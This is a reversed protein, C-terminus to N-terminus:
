LENFALRIEDDLGFTYDWKWSPALLKELRTATKGKDSYVTMKYGEPVEFTHSGELTINEAIFEANGKLLIKVSEHRYIEGKWFVSRQLDIGRNKITVKRLIARGQLGSSVLQLSGDLHLNQLVLESIELHLEAGTELIGKQIKQAIISWLPGLAPHFHIRFAPNEPGTPRPMRFGLQQTFLEYNNKQIDLWAGQPTESLLQGPLGQKKTVSVTKERTNFLIFTRLRLIDDKQPPTQSFDAIADAINQMTTELRGGKLSVRAGYKKTCRVEGKMNVLIGPLPLHILAKQVAHLDAFLINTNAPYASFPSGTKEPIDQIGRTAFDTYEINTIGSLYGEKSKTTAVVNMGEAAGVLRPCSLFGFSKNESVGQGYLALLNQDTGAVPNNIQRLILKDRKLDSFGDFIGCTQMLQWIIGHGGPKMNLELPGKTAFDGEESLMPVLPQEFLFFFEKPRGFWQAEELIELIHATNCKESSTMLAIPTLCTNGTVKEYLRERAELDRILGELLSYGDFNLKAQPLPEGTKEDQLNMRDAAGGVPYVEALRPLAELGQRVLRLGAAHDKDLHIGEPHLLTQSSSVAPKQLLRLLVLHYGAIGGLSHYYKQLPKLSEALHELSALPNDLSEWGTFLAHGQSLAILTLLIEQDEEKTKLLLNKLEKQSSLFELVTPYSWLLSLREGTKKLADLHLLLEKIQAIEQTFLTPPAM